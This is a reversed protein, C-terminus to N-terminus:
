AVGIKSLISTKNFMGFTIVAPVQFKIVQHINMITNKPLM